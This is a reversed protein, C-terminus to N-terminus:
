TPRIVTRVPQPDDWIGGMPMLRRLAVRVESGKIDSSEVGRHEQGKWAFPVTAGAIVKRVEFRGVEIRTLDRRYVAVELEVREWAKSGRNAVRGSVEWRMNFIGNAKMRLDAIQLGSNATNAYVVGERPQFPKGDINYLIRIYDKGRSRSRGSVILGLGGTLATKAATRGVNVHRDGDNYTGESVVKYGHAILVLKESAASKRGVESSDYSRNVWSETWQHTVSVLEKEASEM